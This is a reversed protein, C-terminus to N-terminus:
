PTVSLIVDSVFWTRLNRGFLDSALKRGALSQQQQVDSPLILLM